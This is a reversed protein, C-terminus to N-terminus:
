ERQKVDEYITSTHTTETNNRLREGETGRKTDGEGGGGREEEGV